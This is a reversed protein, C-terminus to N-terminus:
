VALSKKRFVLLALGAILMWVTTPEPVPSVAASIDGDVLVAVFNSQTKAVSFQQGTGFAFTLARSTIASDEVGIWYRDGSQHQINIFQGASELANASTSNRDGNSDFNSVNGLTDSYLHAIESFAEGNTNITRVNYGCDTSGDFSFSSCAVSIDQMSPLRWNNVGLYNAANMGAVWSNAGNWTTSGSTGIQNDNTSISTTSLAMGFQNSQALNFDTLWTVDLVTDYFAQYDTGTPTSALRGELAASASNSLGLVASLLITTITTKFM